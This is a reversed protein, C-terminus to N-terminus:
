VYTYSPIERYIYIICVRPVSYYDIGSGLDTLGVRTSCPHVRSRIRGIGEYGLATGREWRCIADVLFLRGGACSRLEGETVEWATKCSGFTASGLDGDDEGCSRVDDGGEARGRM